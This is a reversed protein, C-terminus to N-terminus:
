NWQKEGGQNQLEKIKPSKEPNWTIRVCKRNGQKWTKALGWNELFNIARSVTDIKRDTQEALNSLYNQEEGDIDKQQNKWIERIVADLSDESTNAM